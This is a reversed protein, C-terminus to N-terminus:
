AGFEKASNSSAVTYEQEGCANVELQNQTLKGQQLLADATPQEGDNEDEIVEDPYGTGHDGQFLGEVLLAEPDEVSFSLAAFTCIPDDAETTSAM